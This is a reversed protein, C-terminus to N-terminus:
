CPQLPRRAPARDGRGVADAHAGGRARDRAAPRRAVPVARAGREPSAPAPPACRHVARGRRRARAARARVRGRRRRELPVQSTCLIRLAPRRTSCASRSRPPPTSARARLQRPDAGRPAGRLRELLAAEGGTVDSRPSSRTSCTTPPRRPRSGSSGSARRGAHPRDRDRAGDQRHRRARRDRRAPARELLTARAGRDRADRASSSPTRAVAPQGRAARLARTRARPDPARAGEAAPGPELGLDDALRARVRQYAALADAQRGARYLATILLEWLGERYPASAVAAELEGIVDEGLRLRAAFSRRSCSAAAGGRAPRPAARGLRRGRAAREGRFLALAAASARAAAAHDGADLLAARPRPTACCGSRTSPPPSSALRYGDDGGAVLSPDGLSRRLRAVKPQLTNRNRRRRRGLPRRAAPRRAGADRRRARPARAAGGDQRGPGRRRQGDRRVEVPGLM